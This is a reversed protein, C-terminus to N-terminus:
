EPHAPAMCALFVFPSVPIPLDPTPMVTSISFLTLCRSRCDSLLERASIRSIEHLSKRHECMTLTTSLHRDTHSCTSYVRVGRANVVLEITRDFAVHVSCKTRLGMQASTLSATVRPKLVIDHDNQMMINSHCAYTHLWFQTLRQDRTTKQSTTTPPQKPALFMGTAQCRVVAVSGIQNFEQARPSHIRAIRAHHVSFPRLPSLRPSLPITLSRRTGCVIVDGVDRSSLVFRPNCTYM